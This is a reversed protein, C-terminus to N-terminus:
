LKNNKNDTDRNKNSGYKWIVIIGVFLLILGLLNAIAFGAGGATSKAGETCGRQFSGWFLFFIITAIAKYLNKM